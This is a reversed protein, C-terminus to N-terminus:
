SGPAVPVLDEYVFSGEIGRLAEVEYTAIPDGDEALGRSLIPYERVGGLELAGIEGDTRCATEAPSGNFAGTM